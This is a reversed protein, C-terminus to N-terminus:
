LKRLIQLEADRKLRTLAADGNPDAQDEKTLFQVGSSARPLGIQRLSFGLFAAFWEALEGGDRLEEM